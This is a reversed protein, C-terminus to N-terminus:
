IGKLNSHSKLVAVLKADDGVCVAMKSVGLIYRDAYENALAIDPVQGGLLVLKSKGYPHIEIQCSEEYVRCGIVEDFLSDLNTRELWRLTLKEFSGTLLIRKGKFEQVYRV